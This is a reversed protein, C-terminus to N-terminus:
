SDMRSIEEPNPGKAMWKKAPDNLLSHNPKQEMRSKVKRLNKLKELTSNISLGPHFKFELLQKLSTQVSNKM